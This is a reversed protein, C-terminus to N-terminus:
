RAGNRHNHRRQLQWLGLSVFVTVMALTFLGFGFRGRRRTAQESM